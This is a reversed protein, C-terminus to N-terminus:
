KILGRAKAIERNRWRAWADGNQSTPDPMDNSNAAKGAKVPEIPAPAKSPKKVPEKSVSAKLFGIEMAQEAPDLAAIRQAEEPNKALHYAIRPGMEGSRTIANAMAQTMPASSSALVDEFDEIEGAVKVAHERFRKAAEQESEVAKQKQTQEERAKFRQEVKQDARWEARAELYAEYSDFSERRPEGNDAPKAEPKPEPRGRLALEETVQLRRSLEERKRREKSLRKELIEDLERQTFTKEPKIDEPKNEAVAEATATPEPQAVNSPTAGAEPLVAGTSEESM